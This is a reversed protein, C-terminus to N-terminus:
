NHLFNTVYPQGTFNTAHPTKKALAKAVYNTTLLRGKLTKVNQQLTTKMIKKYNSTKQEETTNNNNVM